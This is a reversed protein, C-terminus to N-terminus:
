SVLHMGYHSMSSTYCYFYKIVLCLFVVSLFVLIPDLDIRTNLQVAILMLVFAVCYLTPVEMTNHALGLSMNNLICYPQVIFKM